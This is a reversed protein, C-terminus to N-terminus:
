RVPRRGRNPFSPANLCFYVSSRKPLVIEMNTGNYIVFEQVLEQTYQPKWILLGMGRVMNVSSSITFSYLAILLESGKLVQQQNRTFVGGFGANGIDGTCEIQCLRIETVQLNLYHGQFGFLIGLQFLMAHVANDAKLFGVM